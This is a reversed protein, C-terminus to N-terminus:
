EDVEGAVCRAADTDKGVGGGPPRQQGPVGGPVGQTDLVDPLLWTIGAYEGVLVAIQAKVSQMSEVRDLILDADNGSVVVM